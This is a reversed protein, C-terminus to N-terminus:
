VVKATRRRNIKKKAKVKPYQANLDPDKIRSVCDFLDDHLAVPFPEYEDNIFVKTLDEQKGEYNVRLCQHPLYFQGNECDPILRKIRDNKQVKGGLPYINFRYNEEDMVYEIHEIDSDKGYKEYGVAIPQFERHFYILMRTRENLNLRDRLLTVVYTNKDPGLAVVAMATYDSQKKKASAPDCLLYLNLGTLHQAKWFKLWERKFGQAEDALPNQLIQTSFTYSGMSRRKKQMFERTWLVPEGDVTGDKTGPYLRPIAVHRDMITKYPDNFHYRTGIYREIDAIGYRPVIQASGLNLSLEWNETSKTIMDPNTVHKETIVDDYVRIQYHRGTPMSDTLGHAEITAEKPNGQRKVILGDDLSWKPAQKFPEDFLIDSFLWKLKFNESLEQRIQYLFKKAIPRTVSFLGITIEPDYLMDQINLGFTVISSKHHERAWLDLYQNPNRQVEMCRDFIWDRRMDDRNCIYVLLYYLDHLVLGRSLDHLQEETRGELMRAYEQQRELRNSM